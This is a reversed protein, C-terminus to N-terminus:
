DLELAVLSNVYLMAEEKTAFHVVDDFLQRSVVFGGQADYLGSANYTPRITAFLGRQLVSRLGTKTKIQQDIFAMEVDNSSEWQIYPKYPMSNRM